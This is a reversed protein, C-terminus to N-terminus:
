EGCNNQSQCAGGCCAGCGAGGCGLRAMENVAVRLAIIKPNHDILENLRDVDESLALANAGGHGGSLLAILEAAKDEYERLAASLAPDQSIARQCAHYNKLVSVKDTDSM